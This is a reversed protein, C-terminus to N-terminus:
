SDRLGGDHLWTDFDPGVIRADPGPLQAGHRMAKGATGPVPVPVVVVRRGAAKLTARVLDVLDAPEPGAVECLEESPPEQVLGLLHEAVSRAAVPQIRMIPVFAVPGLRTRELIQGAFEHFQTARVISVALRGSRAVREQTLKAQYYGYGSTQELGVISLVVLRSAGAAAGLSSLRGTVETFFATAQDEKTSPANTVDVVVEAGGLGVAAQHEDRLDVGAGRALVAVDHGAGRALEVLHRGVTGTGGAVAIKM